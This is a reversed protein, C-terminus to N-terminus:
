KLDSEPREWYMVRYCFEAYRNCLRELFESSQMGAVIPAYVFELNETTKKPPAENRYKHHLHASVPGISAVYLFLVVGVTACIRKAIDGKTM